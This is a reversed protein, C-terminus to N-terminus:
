AAPASDLSDLSRALTPVARASAGCRTLNSALRGASGAEPLDSRTQLTVSVYATTANDNRALGACSRGDFRSTTSTRRREEVWDYRDSALDYVSGRFEAAPTRSCTSAPATPAWPGSVFM